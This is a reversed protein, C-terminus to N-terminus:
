LMFVVMAFVIMLILNIDKKCDSLDSKKFINKLLRGLVKIVSWLDNRLFYILAIIVSFQIVLPLISDCGGGTIESYLQEWLKQHGEYSVPTLTFFGGFIGSLIAKIINM